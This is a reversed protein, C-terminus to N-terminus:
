GYKQDQLPHALVIKDREGSSPRSAAGGLTRLRSKFVYFGTFGIHGIGQGVEAFERSEISTGRRDTTLLREVTQGLGDSLMEQLLKGRVEYHRSLGCKRHKGAILSGGAM